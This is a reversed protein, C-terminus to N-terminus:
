REGTPVGSHQVATFSLTYDSRALKKTSLPAPQVNVLKIDWGEVTVQTGLTFIYTTPSVVGGLAVSATVTGAQICVVDTACRSDQIVATPMMTLGGINIKEGIKASHMALMGGGPHTPPTTTADGGPCPAFTCNPGTRGVATGDPCIKAEATCAVQGGKQQMISNAVAAVSIIVILALVIYITNKSPIM